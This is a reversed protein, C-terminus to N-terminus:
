ADTICCNIFALYITYGLHLRIVENNEMMGQGGALCVHLPQQSKLIPVCQLGPSPKARLSLSTRSLPDWKIPSARLKSPFQHLQSANKVHIGPKRASVQIANMMMLYFPVRFNM